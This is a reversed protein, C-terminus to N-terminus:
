DVIKKEAGIWKKKRKRALWLREWTEKKWTFTELTQIDRKHKGDGNHEWGKDWCKTTGNAFSGVMNCVRQGRQWEQKANAMLQKSEECYYEIFYSTHTPCSALDLTFRWFLSHHWQNTSSSFILLLMFVNLSKFLNILFNSCVEWSEKCHTSFCHSRLVTIHIGFVFAM